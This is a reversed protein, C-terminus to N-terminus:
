SSVFFSIFFCFSKLMVLPCLDLYFNIWRVDEKQKQEEKGAAAAAAAALVASKKASAASPSSAAISNAGPGSRIILSAEGTLFHPRSPHVALSLIDNFHNQHSCLVDVSILASINLSVYQNKSVLCSTMCLAFLYRMSPRLSFTLSLSLSSLPLSLTSSCLVQTLYKASGAQSDVIILHSEKTGVLLQNPANPNGHLARVKFTAEEPAQGLPPPAPILHIHPPAPRPSVLAPNTPCIPCSSFISQISSYRNLVNLLQTLDFDQKVSVDDTWTKVHGDFGASWFVDTLLM